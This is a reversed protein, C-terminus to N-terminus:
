TVTFRGTLNARILLTRAVEMGEGVFSFWYEKNYAKLEDATSSGTMSSTSCVAEKVSPPVAQGRGAHAKM